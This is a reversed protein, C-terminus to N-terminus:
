ARAPVSLRTSVAWALTVALAPMGVVVAVATGPALDAAFSLSIANNLAHLAISPLLSGTYWYLVALGFGLAALAPLALAPAGGAHIGGFVIGSVVAGFVWGKWRWLAGFLLGRFLTEEVIPAVLTLLVASAVLRVTGTKLGLADVTEETADSLGVAQGYVASFIWFAVMVTAAAGVARGVSAPPRWGLTTLGGASGGLRAFVFAAGFLAFDQLYTGTITVGPGEVTGAIAAIIGVGLIAVAYGAVIAAFGAWWARLDPPTRGADERAPARSQSPELGPWSGPRSREGDESLDPAEPRAWLRGGADVTDDSM